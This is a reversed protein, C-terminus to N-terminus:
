RGLPVDIDLQATWMYKSGGPQLDEDLFFVPGVLLSVNDAFYVNAGFGWAGLVNKGTQVDGVFNIKQLGRRGIQIDPSGAGIMAGTRVEDGDSNTLLTGNLGHYIGAAVYGGVPLAKQFMVHLVNYDTVDEEFGLNYIGFSIAPSGGFLASEPTCLKMNLFLPDQSPLLLDFGVEAQVKDFPLVGFTLGTDIPYGPAGASGAAPGKWFYTDYTVHMVGRAQCTATSPAWYTTTPTALAIAPVLASAALVVITAAFSRISRLRHRPPGEPCEPEHLLVLERLGILGQIVEDLQSLVEARTGVIRRAPLLYEVSDQEKRGSGM